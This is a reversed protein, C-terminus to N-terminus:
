RINPWTLEALIIGLGIAVGIILGLVLDTM